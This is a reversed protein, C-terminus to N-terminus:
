KQHKLDELTANIMMVNGQKAYRQLDDVDKKYTASHSNYYKKLESVTGEVLLVNGQSAYKTLDRLLNQEAKSSSESQQSRGRQGYPNSMDLHTVENGNAPCAKDRSNAGNPLLEAVFRRMNESEAKNTETSKMNSEIREM